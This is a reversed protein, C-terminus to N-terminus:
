ACIGILQYGNYNAFVPNELSLYVFYLTFWKVLM